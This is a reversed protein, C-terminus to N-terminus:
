KGKEIKQAVWVFPILVPLAILWFIFSKYDFNLAHLTLGVLIGSFLIFLNSSLYRLM